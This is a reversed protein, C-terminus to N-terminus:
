RGPPMLHGAVDTLRDVSVSGVLDNRANLFHKVYPQQEHRDFAEEDRYVELFVRVRDESVPVSTLYVMTDPEHAAIGNITRAVLADFEEECGEKLAFRVVLAFM